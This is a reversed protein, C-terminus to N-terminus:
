AITFYYEDQPRQKKWDKVNPVMWSVKQGFQEQRKSSQGFFLVGGGCM